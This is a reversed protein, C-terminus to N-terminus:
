SSDNWPYMLMYTYYLTGFFDGGVMAGPPTAYKVVWASCMLPHMCAGGVRNKEVGGKKGKGFLHVCVCDSNYYVYIKQTSIVNKCLWYFYGMIDPM